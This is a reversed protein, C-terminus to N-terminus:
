LPNIPDSVEDLAKAVQAPLKTDQARLIQLFQDATRAGVIACSLGPRSLIWALSVALISENLGEAATAVSEVIRRKDSSLYPKVFGQLHPSAGRSDPPTSSRYKGSLVGRGLASWGLIGFGLAKSAPLIELEIKRNLLSYENTVAALGPLGVSGASGNAALGGGFTNGLRAAAYAAHWAGHNSLGVFRAKGSQWASSLTSLIADFCTHEDPVQLMWLDVYDTGLDQLTTELSTLMSSRSAEVYTRDNHRIVGSKSVIVLDERQVAPSNGRSILSGLVQQAQGEGYTPSTDVVNGGAEVFSTLQQACDSELTDRGWTLTGLGLASVRLGTNGLRRTEM